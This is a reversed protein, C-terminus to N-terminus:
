ARVGVVNLYKGEKAPVVYLTTLQGTLQSSKSKSIIWPWLKQDFCNADIYGNANPGAAQWTVKLFKPTQEIKWIAVERATAGQQAWFIGADQPQKIRRDEAWRDRQEIPSAAPAAGPPATSPSLLARAAHTGGTPAEIQVRCNTLKSVFTGLAAAMATRESETLTITYTPESM